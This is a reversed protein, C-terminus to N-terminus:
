HLVKKKEEPFVIDTINYANVYDPTPIHSVKKVQEMLVKVKRYGPKFIPINLYFTISPPLNDFYLDIKMISNLPSGSGYPYFILPIYEKGCSDKKLNAEISYGMLRPMYQESPGNNFFQLQLGLKLDSQLYIRHKAHGVLAVIQANSLCTMAVFFYFALGLKKM